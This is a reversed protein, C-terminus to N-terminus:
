AGIAGDGPLEGEYYRRGEFGQDLGHSKKTRRDFEEAQRQGKRQRELHLAMPCAMLLQGLHRIPEGIKVSGTAPREGGETAIVPEYGRASYRDVAPVGGAADNPNCLAYHLDPRLNFFQDDTYDGGDFPVPTQPPDHRKRPPL